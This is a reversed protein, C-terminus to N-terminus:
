FQSRAGPSGLSRLLRAAAAATSAESGVSKIINYKRCVMLLRPKIGAINSMRVTNHWIIIITFIIKACKFIPFILRIAFMTIAGLFLALYFYQLHDNHCIKNTTSNNGIAYSKRAFALSGNIKVM